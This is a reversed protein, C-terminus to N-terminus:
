CKGEVRVGSEEEEEGVRPVPGGTRVMGSLGPIVLFLPFNCVKLV